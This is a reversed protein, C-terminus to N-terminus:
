TLDIRYLKGPSVIADQIKANEFGLQGHMTFILTKM